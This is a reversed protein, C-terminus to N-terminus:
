PKKQVLLYKAIQGIVADFNDAVQGNATQMAGIMMLNDSMGFDEITQGHIDTHADTASVTYFTKVRDKYLGAKEPEGYFPTAEYYAFVPKNLGAMYGMEFATGVDMSPGRFRVMNAAIVDAKDMLDINAQYIRLGTDVDPKFDPIENDLPYLGVLEFPWNHAKSIAAIRQKAAKGAAVAEPLFVEPGALYIFYEPKETASANLWFLAMCMLLTLRKM